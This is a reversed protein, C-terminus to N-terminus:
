KIGAELKFNMMSKQDPFSYVKGGPATVSYQTAAAAPPASQTGKAQGTVMQPNVYGKAIAQHAWQNDFASVDKPTTPDTVYKVYNDQQDLLQNHLGTQFNFIKEIARPDTDLNPNNKIFLQMAVRNGPSGKGDDSALSQRMTQLAEQAAYKQFVQAGNLSGGAVQDVISQPAGLGQLAKAVDVRTDMGGGAQFTQLAQRSQDIRKLLEQSEAVQSSLAAGKAALNKGADSAYATQPAFRLDVAKQAEAAAEPTQLGFGPAGNDASSTASTPAAQSPAGNTGSLAATFARGYADKSSQPLASNGLQTQIAAVFSNRLEPDTITKGMDVRAQLWQPLVQAPQPASQEPAGGTMQLAQAKTMQRPGGPLNVTVLDNANAIGQDAQKYAKYTDVAGAPASVVPNGNADRTIASAQGSASINVGKADNERMKAARVQDLPIGLAQAVKVEEPVANGAVIAKGLESMGPLGAIVGGAIANRNLGLIGPQAAPVSSPASQVGPSPMPMAGGGTMPIQGPTGAMVPAPSTASESGQQGGMANQLIGNAFAQTKMQQQFQAAQMMLQMQERQRDQWEKKAAQMNGIGAGLAPGGRGSLLGQALGLTQASQLSDPDQDYMDLLGM